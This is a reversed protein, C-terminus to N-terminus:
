GVTGAAELIAPRLREYIAEAVREAGLETLTTADVFSRQVDDDLVQSLDLVEAPLAAIAADYSAQADEAPPDSSPDGLSRFATPEWAYFVPFGGQSAATRSVGMSRAYRIAALRGVEEADLPEVPPHGILEFGPAGPDADPGGGYLEDYLDEVYPEYVGVIDGRPPDNLAWAGRLDEAGEYFLALDPAGESVVDWSLRFATRWHLQEPIGNNQVELAIGDEAALRALASAITHDDRQGLGFAGAGGYLGLRVEPCDCAPATWTRRRGDEINVHRTSVDLLRYVDFPRIAVREDFVWTVDEVYEDYWPAAATGPASAVEISPARSGDRDDLVFWGAAIAVLGVAGAAVLRRRRGPRPSTSRTADPAWPRQAQPDPRERLQWGIADPLAPRRTARQAAWPLVVALLGLVSFLLAAVAAGALHGVRGAFREVAGGGLRTLLPSACAIAFPVLPTWTNSPDLGQWAAVVSLVAAPAAAGPGPRPLMPLPPHERVVWPALLLGGAAWAAILEGQGPVLAVATAVAITLRVAWLSHRTLMALPLAVALVAAVVLPESAPLAWARAVPGLAGLAAALAIQGLLREHGSARPPPEGPV